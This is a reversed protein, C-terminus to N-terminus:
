GANKLKYLTNYMERNIVDSIYILFEKNTPKRDFEAMRSPRKGTIHNRYANNIENRICHDVSDLTATHYKLAIFPYIDKSLRLDYSNRDIVIKIADLLYAYGNNKVSIGFDRITATAPIFFAQYRDYDEKTASASPDFGFLCPSPSHLSKKRTYDLDGNVSLWRNIETLQKILNNFADPNKMEPNKMKM